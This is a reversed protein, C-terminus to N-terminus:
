QGAITNFILEMKKRMASSSCTYNNVILAFAYHEGSATDIYGAYSKVRTMSGSKAMMRGHATQNKCVNRLTGSEGAVPLTARFAEANTSTNMQKLLDVFHNASIANMRSLGSGDNIQAGEMSFYKRWHSELVKLGSNTSGDGTREYGILSIMHEAFLNVSRMNTQQIVDILRTGELTMLSTRKMYDQPTSFIEMQRATKIGGLLEIGNEKLKKSMEYAFQYEPDPLSGKVIFSSRNAPLTGTAFRDLSYPAGYIYVNDGSAKASVVYNHFVMDPVEPTMENITASRGITSPTKFDIKLLNDYVTLGSPGAGYYNGLDVWNWGDPAGQYGFESADAIVAGEISTIGLKRISACLKQFNHDAPRGMNFYKSGFSPDGGGRIWLNGHLIGSSDISGDYYLRTEPRYNAGLLELATATSFLKATSATPMTLSPNLRAITKNTALDIVKFSISAHKLAPDNNLNDIATQIRNQGYVSNLSLFLTLLLLSLIKM